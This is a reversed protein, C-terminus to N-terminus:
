TLRVDFIATDRLPAHTQRDTLRVKRWDREKIKDGQWIAISKGRNHIIYWACRGPSKKKKEKKTNGARSGVDFLRM